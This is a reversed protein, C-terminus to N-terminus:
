TAGERAAPPVPGEIPRFHARGPRREAEEIQRRGESSTRTELWHFVAAMVTGCAGFWLVGAAVLRALTGSRLDGLKM